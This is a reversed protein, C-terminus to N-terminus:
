LQFHREAILKEKFVKKLGPLLDMASITLLSITCLSGM